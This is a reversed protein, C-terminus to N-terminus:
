GERIADILRMTLAADAFNASPQRREIICDVFHRAQQYFGSLKRPDDADAGMVEFASRRRRVGGERIIEELSTQQEVYASYGVSHVEFRHVRGGTSWNSQLVGTVGNDFAILANWANPVPSAYQRPMSMVQTVTGGALYRITDIAHIADCTIVDAAGRYYIASEGKFFTAQVQTLDGAAKAAALGTNLLPDHRRNFGVMTICDREKAMRAMAETQVTAVGPPKEIFVHVGRELCDMVIDFLLHPPMFVCVADPRIEDLMQRYDSFARGIGLKSALADRKAEVLDCLGALEVEPMEALSPYHYRSAMGGAGVLGFRIAM